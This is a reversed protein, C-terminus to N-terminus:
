TDAAPLADCGYEFPDSPSSVYHVFNGNDSDSLRLESWFARIHVAALKCILNDFLHQPFCPQLHLPIDVVGYAAGM